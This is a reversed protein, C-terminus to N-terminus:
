GSVTFEVCYRYFQHELVPLDSLCCSLYETLIEIDLRGSPIVPGEPCCDGLGNVSGFLPVWSEMGLYINVEVSSGQFHKTLSSVFGGPAHFGRSPLMERWGEARSGPKLSMRGVEGLSGLMLGCPLVLAVSLLTLGFKTVPALSMSVSSVSTSATM